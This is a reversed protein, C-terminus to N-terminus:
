NETYIQKLEFTDGENSELLYVDEIEYDVLWDYMGDVEQKNRYYNYDHWSQYKSIKIYSIENTQKHKLKKAEIIQM